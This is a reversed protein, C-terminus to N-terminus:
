GERDSGAAVAQRTETAGAGAAAVDAGVATGATSDYAGGGAVAEHYGIAAGYARDSARARIAVFLPLIVISIRGSAHIVAVSSSAKIVVVIVRSRARGSGSSTRAPHAAVSTSTRSRSLSTAAAGKRGAAVADGGAVVTALGVSGSVSTSTGAARGIVTGIATTAPIPAGYAAIAVARGRVVATSTRATTLATAAAGRVRAAALATAATSVLTTSRARALSGAASVAGRVSVARAIARSSAAAIGATAPVPPAYSAIARARSTSSGTAARATVGAGVASGRARALAVSATLRAAVIATTAVGVIRASATRAATGTTRVPASARAAGNAQSARASLATARASAGARSLASTSRLTSASARGRAHTNAPGTTAPPVIGAAAQVAARVTARGIATSLGAHAAAAASRGLTRAGAVARHAGLGVVAARGAARGAGAGLSIKAASLASRPRTAGAATGATAPSALTQARGGAVVMATGATGVTEIGDYTDSTEYPDTADYGLPVSVVATLEVRARALGAGAGAARHAGLSVAEATARAVATGTTAPAPPDGVLLLATMATASSSPNWALRLGNAITGFDATGVNTESPTAAPEAIHILRASSTRCDAQTPSTEGVIFSAQGQATSTAVGTSLRIPQNQISTSTPRSGSASFVARVPFGAAIDQNVPSTSAPKDGSVVGLSVGRLATWGFLTTVSPADSVDLAFSTAGFSSYDAVCYYTEGNGLTVFAVDARSVADADLSSTMSQGDRYRVTQVWRATASQMAGITNALGSVRGLATQLESGAVLVVAEPQFSTTFSQVGTANALTSRGCEASIESGGLILYECIIGTAGVAMWGLTVQTSSIASVRAAWFSGADVTPIALIGDYVETACNSAAVNDEANTGIAWQNTTATGSAMGVSTGANATFTDNATALSAVVIVLKAEFGPTLVTDVSTSTPATFSGASVQLAV